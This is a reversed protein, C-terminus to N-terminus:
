IKSMGTIKLAQFVPSTKIFSNKKKFLIYFHFENEFVGLFVFNNYVYM